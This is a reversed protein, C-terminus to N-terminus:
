LTEDLPQGVIFDHFKVVGIGGLFFTLRLM